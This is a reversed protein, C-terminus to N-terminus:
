ETKEVWQTSGSVWGTKGSIYEIKYWGSKTEMIHYKEGPKVRAVEASPSATSPESRVRLFGYENDKVTIFPKEPDAGTTGKTPTPTTKPSATPSTKPSASSSAKPSVTPTLTGSPSATSEGLVSRGPDLALKANVMLRYGASTKVKLTRTLFGRSILVLTHEGVSIDSITLPSTGKPDDDLLVTAADPTTVVSLEANKGSMKELWLIYSSSTLENESLMVDVYTITNPSIKIKDQFSAYSSVGADPVIKITYEGSDLRYSTKGIPTRGIHKDNLFVSAAPQSEVKLEGQKPTRLRLFWVVGGILALFIIIGFFFMIKQKM